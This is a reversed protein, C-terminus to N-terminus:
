AREASSLASLDPFSGSLNNTSLRLETVGIGEVSTVGYWDSIPMDSLWKGSRTWNDGATANYLAVLAGRESTSSTATSTPTSTAAPMQTVTPTPTQTASATETVTASEAESGESQAYAENYKLFSLAVLAALVAGVILVPMVKATVTGLIYKM